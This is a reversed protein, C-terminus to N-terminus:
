TTWLFHTPEGPPKAAIRRGTRTGKEENRPRFQQLSVMGAIVDRPIEAADGAM